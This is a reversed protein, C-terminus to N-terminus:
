RGLYPEDVCDAVLHDRLVVTNAYSADVVRVARLHREAGACDRAHAAEIALAAERDRQSTDPPQSAKRRSSSEFADAIIYGVGGSVIFALGAFFTSAILVEGGDVHAWTAGDSPPEPEYVAGGIVAGTVMVAGLGAVARSSAKNVCGGAGLSLAAVLAVCRPANM